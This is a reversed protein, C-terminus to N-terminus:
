HPNEKESLFKSIYNTKEEKTMTGVVHILYFDNMHDESDMHLKLKIDFEEIKEDMWIYLLWIELQSVSHPHEEM